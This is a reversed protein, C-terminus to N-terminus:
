PCVTATQKILESCYPCEMEGHLTTRKLKYRYDDALTM